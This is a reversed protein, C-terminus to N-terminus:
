AVDEIRREVPQGEALLDSGAVVCRISAEAPDIQAVHRAPMRCHVIVHSDNYQRSLVEGHSALFALLRGNAASMEIEVDEFSRSLAASM